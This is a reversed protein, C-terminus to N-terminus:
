FGASFVGTLGEVLKAGASGLTFTDEQFRQRKCLSNHLMLTVHM